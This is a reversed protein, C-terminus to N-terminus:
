GLNEAQLLQKRLKAHASSFPLATLDKLACWETSPPPESGQMSAFHAELRIRYRTISHNVVAFPKATHYPLTMEPTIPDNLRAEFNPFEWLGANVGGEPRKQVLIKENQQVLFALVRRATAKPRPATEPFSEPNGAKHALCEDALPCGGCRPGVPLCVTAGLEMLAQNLDSCPGSSLRPPSPRNFPLSSAASVLNQAQNWLSENVQRDKPDGTITQLRTLLRIVNGDLIATPQNFAISGIAGATYRGIGPLDLIASFSDPFRGDHDRLITKAARQLNRVRTYYGLGEWLKLLRPEPAQALDTVTPLERIWREWYPVVTKVQTQQLMIESVWVAYPDLTRRWPLDRANSRFWKLLTAAIPRSKAKPLPNTSPSRRPSM